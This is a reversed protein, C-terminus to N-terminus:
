DEADETEEPEDGEDAEDPEEAEEPDEAEEPEEAEGPGEEEEVDREDEDTEERSDTEGEEDEDTEVPEPEDKEEEDPGNSVLLREPHLDETSPQVSTQPPAEAVAQVVEASLAAERREVAVIGASGAGGVALTVAAVKAALPTAALKAIVGGALAAGGGTASASGFGPVAYALSDRLSLPVVLAAAAHRPRLRGELARRGRFVLAEAAPRSAGLASAVEDGSLGYLGRLIVAERQKEPLEELAAQLDRLELRRAVVEDAGEGAPEVVDDLALPERMRRTIRARCENRAITGLWAGPDRPETGALMASYASLFAQQAADEAENADRLLLHCVGYVMRGHESFYTGLRAGVAEPSLRDLPAVALDPTM